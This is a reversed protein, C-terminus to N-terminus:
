CFSHVKFHPVFLPLLIQTYVFRISLVAVSPIALVVFLYVQGAGRRM